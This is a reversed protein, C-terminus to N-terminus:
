RSLRALAAIDSDRHIALLDREDLLVYTTGGDGCSLEAVRYEPGTHHLWARLRHRRSPTSSAGIEGVGM